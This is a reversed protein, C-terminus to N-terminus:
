ENFKNAIKDKAKLMIDLLYIKKRGLLYGFLAGLMVCLPSILLVLPTALNTKMFGTLNLFLVRVVMSAADKFLFSFTEGAESSSTGLVIDGIPLINYYILSYVGIVFLLTVTLPLALMFANKMPAKESRLDIKAALAGKSYIFGFLTLTFIVSHLFNGRSFAFMWSLAIFGLGTLVLNIIYDLFLSATLKKRSM